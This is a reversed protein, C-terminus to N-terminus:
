KSVKIIKESMTGFSETELFLTYIGDALNSLDYNDEHYGGSQFKSDLIMKNGYTDIVHLAVQDEEHLDYVVKIQDSFLSPSVSFSSRIKDSTPETGRPILDPCYLARFQYFYNQEVGDRKLKLEVFYHATPLDQGISISEWDSIDEGQYEVITQGASNTLRIEYSDACRLSLPIGESSCYNKTLWRGPLPGRAHPLAEDCFDIIDLDEDIIQASFNAGRTVSFVSPQLTIESCGYLDLQSIDGSPYATPNNPSPTAIVEVDFIDNSVNVGNGFSIMDKIVLGDILEDKLIPTLNGISGENHQKFWYNNDSDEIFNQSCVDKDDIYKWIKIYDVEMGFPWETFSNPPSTYESVLETCENNSNWAKCKVVPGAGFILNMANSYGFMNPIPPNTSQFSCGTKRTTLFSAVFYVQGNLYFKITEAGSFGMEGADYWEIGVTVFGEEDHHDDYNFGPRGLPDNYYPCSSSLFDYSHHENVQDGDIDRFIHLNSKMNRTDRQDLEFIDIETDNWLWFAASQGIGSPATNTWANHTYGEPHTSHGPFRFRMEYKGFRHRNKSEIGGYEYSFDRLNPINDALVINDCEDPFLECINKVGADCADQLEQPLLGYYESSCLVADSTICHTSIIESGTLKKGSLKLLGDEVVVANDSTFTIPSVWKEEEEDYYLQCDLGSPNGISWITEDLKDGDFHDEVVLMWGDNPQAYQVSTVSICILFLLFRM